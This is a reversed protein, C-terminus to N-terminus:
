RARKLRYIRLDGAETAFAYNQRIFEALEPFSEHGDRTRDTFGFGAPGVADIFWEPRRRTIDRLYRNRYFQRLPGNVLQYAAHAERTGQALGTDVWVQSSWGWMALLDDPAAHARVYASAPLPPTARHEAFRGLYPNYGTAHRLVQPAVTVLLFTVVFAALKRGAQAAGAAHSVWHLGALLLTPLTLVNLYHALMRGPTIVSVFAIAVAAWASLLLGRRPLSAAHYASQGCWLAYGLTPFFFWAFSWGHSTLAFFDSVMDIMGAPKADVYGLNSLLYAGRFQGFLGFVALFVAVIASPALAGGVTAALAPRFGREHRRFFIAGVAIGGAVLGLPGLQLKAYPVCGLAFGGTACWCASAAGALPRDILGRAFAWLGAGILALPVLETSYHTYDPWITFSWFAVGPFIALRAVGEPALRRLLAWCSLLTSAQLLTALFRATAYNLPWGLWAFPLLALETLPGHTTGDVYKWYVPYDLLTRAGAIAQSEDPNIEYPVFWIPWRFACLTAVVGLAFLWNSGLLSSNEVPGRLPRVALWLTGAMLGFALLTNRAPVVDLWHLLDFAVSM